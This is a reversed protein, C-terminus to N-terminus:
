RSGDGRDKRPFVKQFYYGIVFGGVAGALLFLLARLDGEGVDLLPARPARGAATAYKEVVTEDVGRWDAPRATGLPALTMVLALVLFVGTLKM